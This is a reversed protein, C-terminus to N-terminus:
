KGQRKALEVSLKYGGSSLSELPNSKCYNDMWLALSESDTQSLINKNSEVAIGSVYGDLWARYVAEMKNARAASWSGCSIVGFYVVPASYVETSVLLGVVLLVANIKKM